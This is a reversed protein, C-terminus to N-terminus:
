FDTSFSVRRVVEEDDDEVERLSPIQKSTTEEKKVRRVKKTPSSFTPCTGSLHGPKRCRFCLGKEICRKREESTLRTIKIVDVDM